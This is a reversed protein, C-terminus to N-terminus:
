AGRGQPHNRCRASRACGARLVPRAWVPVRHRHHLDLVPLHVIPCSCSWTWQVAASHFWTLVQTISPQAMAGFGVLFDLASFASHLGNVPWKNKPPCCRTLKMACPMFSRSPSSCWRLCRSRSPAHRGCACGPAPSPRRQPPGGELMSAPLWYPTGFNAFSRTGTARNVCNGLLEAGLSAASFAGQASSSSASETFALAGRGCGPWLLNLADDRFTFLDRRACRCGTTFAAAGFGSGQVIGAARAIIFFRTENGEATGPQELRPRRAPLGPRAPEPRWVM